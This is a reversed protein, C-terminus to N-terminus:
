SVQHREKNEQVLKCDICMSAVPRALLRKLGIECGCERCYGFSNEDLDSLAERIKDVLRRDRDRERLELTFEAEQSARDNEDAFLKAQEPLEGLTIGMRRNADDLMNALRRRFWEVQRPNMYEEGDTPIYKPDIRPRKGNGKRAPASTKRAPRAPRAAPKAAPRAAKPKTAAKPRPRPAAKPKAKATPKTKPKAAAKPKPKPKPRPAAKPRLRPKAKPKAAPKPRAKGKPKPKAAARAKAAVKPGPKPKAKAKVAPKPAAKAAPKRAARAAASKPKKGKATAM